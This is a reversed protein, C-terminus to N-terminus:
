ESLKSLTYGLGGFGLGYALSNLFRSRRAVRYTDLAANLAARDKRLEKPLRGYARLFKFANKTAASEEDIGYSDAALNSIGGVLSSGLAVAPIVFKQSTPSSAHELMKPNLGVRYGAMTLITGLLGYLAAKNMRKGMEGTKSNKGHGLEHALTALARNKSGLAVVGDRSTVAPALKKKTSGMLNGAAKNATFFANNKGMWLESPKTMELINVDVGSIDRLKAYEEPKLTVDAKLAKLAEDLKNHAKKGSIYSYLGLGLAGAGLGGAILYDQTDFSAM